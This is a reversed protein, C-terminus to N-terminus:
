DRGGESGRFAYRWGVEEKPARARFFLPLLRQLLDKKYADKLATPTKNDNQHDSM